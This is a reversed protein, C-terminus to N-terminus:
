AKLSHGWLARAKLVASEASCGTCASVVQLNTRGFEPWQYGMSRVVKYMRQAWWLTLRSCPGPSDSESESDSQSRCACASHVEDAEADASRQEQEYVEDWADEM